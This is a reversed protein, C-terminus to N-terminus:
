IGPGAQPPYPPQQPQAYAARQEPPLSALWAEYAPNAPPASQQVAAALMSVGQQALGAPPYAAPTQQIGPWHQPSDAPYQQSQAPPGDQAYQQLTQPGQPNYPQPAPAPAAYAAPNYGGQQQAYPASTPQGYPNAGYGPVSGPAPYGQAPQPQYAVQPPQQAPPAVLSVPEPNWSLDKNFIKNWLESALQFRQEGDPREAGNLDRGPKTLLYPRNGQTGREFVGVAALDGRALADRVENVFGYGYDSVNTFRCPTAITHTNPRQKAPDNDLSDGYAMPGGDCVTLHFYAEPRAKGADDKADEDVRIPEIIVTRGVLHRAKPAAAGGGSARVSGLAPPAAPLSQGGQPAYQQAPAPAAAPPPAPQAYQQPAYAQPQQQYQQAYRPDIHQVQPMYGQQQPYTV